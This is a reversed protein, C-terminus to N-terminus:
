GDRPLLGLSAVAPPLQEEFHLETVRTRVIRGRQAVVLWALATAGTLLAYGSASPLAVAEIRPIADSLFLILGTYVGFMLKLNGQGPLWACTFPVKHFRALTLEILLLGTLALFLCHAAAMRWGWIIDATIASIALVPALGVALLTKRAASLYAASRCPDTIRFLWNARVEVPITFSVRLGVIVFFLMVLPMGLQTKEREFAMDFGRQDGHLLWALQSCVWALGIGVYIALVLRHQRSRALTQGIFALIARERPRKSLLRAGLASWGRAPGRRSAPVIGAQEVTRRMQRTYALAYVVLATLAIAGFGMLARRALAHLAPNASGIMTQLLGLFWYPPLLLYWLRNGPAALAGPTSLPPMLFYLTLVAFFAACQLIGSWRLFAAHSLVHIAIGQVAALLLFVFAGALFMVVWYAAVTRAVTLMGARDPLILFPYVLGIFANVAVVALALAGSLAAIKAAFLTRARVPMAGLILCDRRDPFLADWLLLTFVAIVAMTTSILFEQDMWAAIRIQAPTMHQAAHVYKPVMMVVLVVSLAMLLAATQGLLSSIEGRLSFLDTDFFRYAFLHVLARFQRKERGARAIM